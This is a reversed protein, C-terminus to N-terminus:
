SIVRMDAAKMSTQSCGRWGVRGARASAVAIRRAGVCRRIADASAQGHRETSGLVSNCSTIIVGTYPTILSPRLATVVRIVQDTSVHRCPTQAAIFSYIYSEATGSKRQRQIRIGLYDFGNSIHVVRQDQGPSACAWRPSCSPSPSIKACSSPTPQRARSHRLRGSLPTTGTPCPAPTDIDSSTDSSSGDATWRPRVFQDRLQHAACPGRRMSRRATRQVSGHNWGLRPQRAATPSTVRVQVLVCQSRSPSLVPQKPAKSRETMAEASAFCM